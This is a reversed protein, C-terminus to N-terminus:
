SSDVKFRQRPTEQTHTAYVESDSTNRMIGYCYNEKKDHYKPNDIYIKLAYIVKDSKFKEWEQYIKYIVSEAIVGNKRTWRLIDFYEDIVKLQSDSYRQRFNEIELSYNIINKENKENKNTDKQPRKTTKEHDKQPRKTTERDQYICYNCITITTKKRDTKKIIMEDQELLHLFSRVKAKSWGWRQMLKLESTIFSGREAEVIENGLLFKNHKHNAMLLMDIWAARKDFPLEEWLWHSQIDRNIKIWGGM